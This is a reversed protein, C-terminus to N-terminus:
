KLIFFVYSFYEFTFNKENLEAKTILAEHKFMKIGQIKDTLQGNIFIAVEQIKKQM